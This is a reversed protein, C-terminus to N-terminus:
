TATLTIERMDAHPSGVSRALTFRNGIAPASTFSSDVTVSGNSLASVTSWDKLRLREIETQIIHGAVTINRATEIAPFARQMAAFTSTILVALILAAIMVELMTFAARARVKPQREPLSSRNWPHSPCFKM